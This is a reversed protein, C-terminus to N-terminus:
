HKLETVAGVNLRPFATSALSLLMGLRSYIGLAATTPHLAHKARRSTKM